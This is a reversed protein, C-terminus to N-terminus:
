EVGGGGGGKTGPTPVLCRPGALTLDFIIFDFLDTFYNKETQSFSSNQRIHPTGRTKVKM